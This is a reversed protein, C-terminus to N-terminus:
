GNYLRELVFAWLMLFLIMGGAVSGFDFLQRKGRDTVVDPFFHEKLIQAYHYYLLFLVFIIGWTLYQWTSDFEQVVEM